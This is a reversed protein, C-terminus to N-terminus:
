KMGNIVNVEEQTLRRKFKWKLDEFVEIYGLNDKIIIRETGAPKISMFKFKDFENDLKEQETIQDSLIEVVVSSISLWANETYLLPPIIEFVGTKTPKVIYNVRMSYEEVGNNKTITENKNPGKLVKLFDNKFTGISDIKTKSVFSILFEEDNKYTEKKLVLDISQSIGMNPFLMFAGIFLFLIIRMNAFIYM